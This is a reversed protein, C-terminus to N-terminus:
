LEHIRYNFYEKVKERIRKHWEKGIQVFYTSTKSKRIKQRVYRIKRMTIWVNYFKRNKRRVVELEGIGYPLVIINGNEVMEYICEELYATVIWNAFRQALLWRQVTTGSMPCWDPILTLFNFKTEKVVDAGSLQIAITHGGRIHKDKYRKM